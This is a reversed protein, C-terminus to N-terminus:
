WNLDRPGGLLIIDTHKDSQIFNVVDRLVNVCNNKGVDHAFGWFILLERKTLSYIDNTATTVAIDTCSRQKV